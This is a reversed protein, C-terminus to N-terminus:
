WGYSWRTNSLWIKEKKAQTKEPAAGKTKQNNCGYAVTLLIIFLFLLKHRMLVSLNPM